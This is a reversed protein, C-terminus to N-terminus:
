DHEWITCLLVVSSRKVSERAHVCVHWNLFLAEGESTVPGQVPARLPVNGVLLEAPYKAKGKRENGCSSLLLPGFHEGGTRCSSDSDWPNLSSWRVGVSDAKSRTVIGWTSLHHLSTSKPLVKLLQRLGAMLVQITGSPVQQTNLWSGMAKTM